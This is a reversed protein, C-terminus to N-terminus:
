GGRTRRARCRGRGDRAARIAQSRDVQRAPRTLATGPGRLARLGRERASRPAARARRMIRAGVDVPDLLRTRGSRAAGAPPAASSGRCALATAPLGPLRRQLAAPPAAPPRRGAHHLLLAPMASTKAAPAAARGGRRAPLAGHAETMNLLTASMAPRPMRAHASRASCRCRRPRSRRAGRAVARLVDNQDSAPGTDEGALWWIGSDVRAGPASARSAANGAVDAFAGRGGAFRRRCTELGPTPM